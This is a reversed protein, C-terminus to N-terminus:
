DDVFIIEFTYMSLKDIVKKVDHWFISICEGEHYAPIVLSIQKKM